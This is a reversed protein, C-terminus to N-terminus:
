MVRILNRGKKSCEDIKLEYDLEESKSSLWEIFETKQKYIRRVQYKDKLEQINKTM